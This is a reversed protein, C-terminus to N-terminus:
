ENKKKLAEELPIIDSEKGRRERNRFFSERSSDLLRIYDEATRHDYDNRLKTHGMSVALISDPMDGRRDTEYTHRLCYQVMGEKFFGHEQMVMKFHKNSSEAWLPKGNRPGHFLLDEGKLKEHKIYRMLLVATDEDLLGPRKGYGKGTTKVHDEIKRSEHNASSSTFVALGKATMYIDCVRLSAVEGPRWGTDYFVSFYVAWMEGHWISIREDPDAPFLVEAQHPPIAERENYEASIAKIERAPNDDRLGDKKVWDMVTRFTFLIKNKTNDAAEEGNTCRIGPIWAEISKATIATVLINGFAPLIHNDLIAQQKEYYKPARKRKYLRDADRFTNPGDKKFFGAAFENLTPTKRGTQTAVGRNQLYNEAFLTAGPIDYCGTSVRKGPMLDFEVSIPRDKHIRFKYPKDSSRHRGMNKIKEDIFQSIM